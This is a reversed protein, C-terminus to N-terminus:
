KPRDGPPRFDEHMEAGVAGIQESQEWDAGDAGDARDAGVAGITTQGSDVPDIPKLRPGIPKLGWDVESGDNSGRAVEFIEGRASVSRTM